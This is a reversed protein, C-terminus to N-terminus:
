LNQATQPKGNRSERIKRRAGIFGITLVVIATAYQISHAPKLHAELPKSTGGVLTPFVNFDLSDWVIQCAVDVSSFVRWLGLSQESNPIRFSATAYGEDNTPAINVFVTEGSSDKVQFTVLVNQQPWDNYTVYATLNVVDGPKFAGGSAGQGEGGKQTFLDILREEQLQSPQISNWFYMGSMSYHNISELETDYIQTQSLGIISYQASATSPENAKFSICTLTGNGWPATSSLPLTANVALIGEAENVTLEFCAQEPLFGGRVVEVTDLLETDYAILLSCSRMDEVNSINVAVDFYEGNTRAVYM